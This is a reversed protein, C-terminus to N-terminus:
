FAEISIERRERASAMLAGLGGIAKRRIRTAFNRPGLEDAGSPPGRPQRMPQSSMVRQTAGAGNQITASVSGLRGMASAGAGAGNVGGPLPRGIGLGEYLKKAAEERPSLSQQDASATSSSASDPTTPSQGSSAASKSSSTVSSEDGEDASEDIAVNSMPQSVAASFHLPQPRTRLPSVATSPPPSSADSPPPTIKVSPRNAGNLVSNNNGGRRWSVAADSKSPGVVPSGSNSNNGGLIPTSAVTPTGLSTGGSIVTTHASPVQYAGNRSGNNSNSSTFDEDSGYGTGRVGFKGSLAATKPM